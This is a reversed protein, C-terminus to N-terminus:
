RENILALPDHRNLIRGLKLQLLLVDGPQFGARGVDFSAALDALAIQDFVRQPHPGVPDNQAFAARALCEIHELRHVGAM